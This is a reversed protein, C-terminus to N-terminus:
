KSTAKTRVKKPKTFRSMELPFKGKKTSLNLDRLSKCKKSNKPLIQEVVTSIKSVNEMKKDKRRKKIKQLDTQVKLNKWVDRRNLSM